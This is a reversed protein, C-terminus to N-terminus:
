AEPTGEAGDSMLMFDTIQGSEPDITIHMETLSGDSGVLIFSGQTSPEDTTMIFTELDIEFTIGASQLESLQSYLEPMSNGEFYSPHFHTNVDGLRLAGEGANAVGLLWEAQEGIPGEPLSLEMVPTAEPTAETTAEPPGEPQLMFNTIQGSEPDVTMGVVMRSGDSGILVFSGNTAPMDRTTAFTDMEIEYTIGASQLESLQSYLEPMSNDEFYSPHFHTNVDGLRLAGEGANAVGLLWEANEGLPGDPLMFEGVAAAEPTLALTGSGAFAPVMATAIALAIATRAIKRFREM